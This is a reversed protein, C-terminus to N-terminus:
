SEQNRCPRPCSLCPELQRAPNLSDMEASENEDLVRFCILATWEPDYDLTVRFKKETQIWRQFREMFEMAADMGLSLGRHNIRLTEEQEVTDVEENTGM